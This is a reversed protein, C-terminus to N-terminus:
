YKYKNIDDLMYKNTEKLINYLIKGEIFNSEDIVESLLCKNDLKKFNSIVTNYYNKKNTYERIFIYLFSIVMIAPIYIILFINVNFLILFFLILLLSIIYFIIDILKSGLYDSFKM